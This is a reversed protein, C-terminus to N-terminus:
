SVKNSTMKENTLRSAGKAIAEKGYISQLDKILSYVVNEKEITDFSDFLSIQRVEEEVKIFKTAAVGLLRVPYAPDYFDDFLDIMLPYIDRSSNSALDLTRTRSISKLTSYKIQLSFTYAKLEKKELRNTLTNVLYKLGDKITSIQYEDNDFTFSNSISSFETFSNTDVVSNDIGFAHAILSAANQEGIAMKIIDPNPYKALDGITKIGISELIPATKKGVGQMAVIPLPWLVSEIERKRMVTIGLPKKMNSGMKALFKNPGIGISCPLKFKEMLEKQIKEALEIPHITECLDTVDLYGEDISAPEVLSTITLLYDFFLRFYYTYLSMNPDVIILDPYRNLAEQLRMASKIGYKRAEYSAALIISKRRVDSHAVVVPKEKLTDDEAVECSVFFCNM